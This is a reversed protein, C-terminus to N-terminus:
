PYIETKGLIRGKKKGSGKGAVEALCRLKTLADNQQLIEKFLKLKVNYM